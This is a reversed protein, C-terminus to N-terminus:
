YGARANKKRSREKKKQSRKAATKNKSVGHTIKTHNSKTSPCLYLTSDLPYQVYPRDSVRRASVHLANVVEEGREVDDEQRCVDTLLRSCRARERKTNHEQRKETPVWQWQRWKQTFSRPSTSTRRQKTPPTAALTITRTSKNKKQTTIPPSVATTQSCKNSNNTNGAVAVARRTVTAPPIVFARAPTQASYVQYADRGALITVINDRSGGGRKGVKGRKKKNRVVDM